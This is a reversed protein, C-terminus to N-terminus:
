GTQRRRFVISLNNAPMDHVEPGEFGHREALHAVSELDRVGWEPNKAQLERDFAENSSATHRGSRRYPGYLFLIGRPVTIAEAGRILAEAASWPAIHIMNLCIVASAFGIPWPQDIVDLRLPEGVNPLAKAARWGAISRLSEEDRETPQWHLYPMQQAFHVIHQGTGSSVELVLGHDPLLRTLLDAVPGKNREASPSVLRHETLRDVKECRM